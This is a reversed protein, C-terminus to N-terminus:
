EAARHGLAVDQALQDIRGDLRAIEQMRTVGVVDKVKRMEGELNSVKGELSTVKGELRAQGALVSETKDLLQLLLPRLDDSM